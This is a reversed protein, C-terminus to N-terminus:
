PEAEFIIDVLREDSHVASRPYVNGEAFDKLQRLDEALLARSFLDGSHSRLKKQLQAPSGPAPLRRPGARLLLLLLRERHRHRAV